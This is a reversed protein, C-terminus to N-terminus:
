RHLKKIHRNSLHDFIWHMFRTFFIEYEGIRRYPKMRLQKNEISVKIDGEVGGWLLWFM